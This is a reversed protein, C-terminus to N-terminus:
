ATAGEPEIWIGLDFAEGTAHQVQAHGIAVGVSTLSLHKLQSSQWLQQLTDIAPRKERIRDLMENVSLRRDNQLQKLKTAVDKGLDFAGCKEDIVKDTMCNVQLKATDLLCPMLMQEVSTRALGAAELEELTFGKCFIGAYSSRWNELFDYSGISLSACGAFELHQYAAVKKSVGDVFPFVMRDLYSLFGDFTKVALYTTYRLIFVLALVGIQDTTLKPAVELSENLVIRLLHREGERARDALLRVLLAGLDKSGSRAFERQAVYLAYQFDPDQANPVEVHGASKMERLFSDVLEEARERATDRAEASLRVFNAEYVDMAVQRAEALSLGVTVQGAQINVSHDGAEQKQPRSM